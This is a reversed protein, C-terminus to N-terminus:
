FDDEGIALQCTTAKKSTKKYFWQNKARFDSISTLTDKQAVLFRVIFISDNTRAVKEPTGMLSQSTLTMSQYPQLVAVASDLNGADMLNYKLKIEQTTNNKVEYTVKVIPDCSVLFFFGLLFALIKFINNKNKKM